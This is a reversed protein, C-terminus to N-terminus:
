FELGAERAADALAKLRGHYAFGGRDFIVSAVGASQARSALLKGVESATEVTLTRGRLDAEQSSASALTRGTEDDIVQAYIYRNSRYVALRPRESRGVVGKRVRFHRRRRADLRTGRSM